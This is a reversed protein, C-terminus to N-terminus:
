ELLKKLLEEVIKQENYDSSIHVGYKKAVLLQEKRDLLKLSNFIETKISLHYRWKNKYIYPNIVVGRKDVWDKMSVKVEVDDKILEEIKSFFSFDPEKPQEVKNVVPKNIKKKTEAFLM